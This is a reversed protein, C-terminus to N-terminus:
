DEDEEDEEDEGVLLDDAMDEVSDNFWDKQMENPDCTGDIISDIVESDEINACIIEGAQLRSAEDKDYESNLVREFTDEFAAAMALVFDKTVEASNGKDTEGGFEVTMKASNVNSTAENIRWENFSKVHKM